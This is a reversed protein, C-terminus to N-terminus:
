KPEGEIFSLMERAVKYRTEKEVEERSRIETKM